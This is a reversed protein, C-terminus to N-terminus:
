PDAHEDPDEAQRAHRHRDGIRHQREAVDDVRDGRVVQEAFRDRRLAPEADAEDDDADVEDRSSVSPHRRRQLERARQEVLRRDGRDAVHQAGAVDRAADPDLPELRRQRREAVAPRHAHERRRGGGDFDRQLKAADTGAVFHDRAACLKKVTSFMITLLARRRHEDIAIEDRAVDLEAADGRAIPGRVRAIM